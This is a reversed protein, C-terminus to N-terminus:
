EAGDDHRLEAVEPGASDRLTLVDGQRGIGLNLRNSATDDTYWGGMDVRIDANNAIV